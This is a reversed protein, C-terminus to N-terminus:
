TTVYELNASLWATTVNAASAVTKLSLRDGRVVAISSGTNNASTGSAALTVTCATDIGNLRLTYVVQTAIGDCTIYMNRVTGSVPV